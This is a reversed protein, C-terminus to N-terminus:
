VMVQWVFKHSELSSLSKMPEGVGGGGGGGGM